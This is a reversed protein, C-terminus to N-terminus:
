RQLPMTHLRCVAETISASTPVAEIDVKGDLSEALEHRPERDHTANNTPPTQSSEERRQVGTTHTYRHRQSETHAYTHESSM